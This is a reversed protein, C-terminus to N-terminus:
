AVMAMHLQYNRGICTFQEGGGASLRAQLRFDGASTMHVLGDFEWRYTASNGLNPSTTPDSNLATIAGPQLASNNVEQVLTTGIAVVDATGTSNLRIPMGVIPVSANSTFRVMGSVRYWGTFVKAITALDAATTSTINVNAGPASSAQGFLWPQNDGTIVEPFGGANNDIQIEQTGTIIQIHEGFQVGTDVNGSIIGRSSLIRGQQTFVANPNATFTYFLISSLSRNVAILLSNDYETDGALFKNNFQDTGGAFGSSVSSYVLNGAAPAASYIFLGPTNTLSGDGNSLYGNSFTVNSASLTGRILANQFEATGDQNISWGSVGHVFNPSFMSPIAISGQGQTLGRFSSQGNPMIVLPKQGAVSGQAYWNESPDVTISGNPPIPVVMGTLDNGVTVQNTLDTNILLLTNVDGTKNRGSWVQKAQTSLNVAITTAM